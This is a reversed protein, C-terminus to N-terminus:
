TNSVYDSSIALWKYLDKSKQPIDTVFTGGKCGRKFIIYGEEYLNDLGKKITKTSVEYLKALEVIPPIKDGIEFNEAIFHKLKIEIKEYNYRFKNSDEKIIKTGYRGRYMQVLGKESLIKLADHLTKISVNYKKALKSNTPLTDSKPNIIYDNQINLVIKEVLTQQSINEAEFNLTEIYYNNGTKRLIGCIVLSNFAVRVTPNSMGISASIKRISLLKDGLQYNNNKIFYKILDVALDKKSTLKKNKTSKSVKIYTGIRQKSEVLNNDELLRFVNQMTGKSVGIHFALVEKSPLLDYEKIVNNKLNEKIWGALWNYIKSVKEENNKICHIHPAMESLSIQRPIYAQNKQM